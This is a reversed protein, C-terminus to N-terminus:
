STWPRNPQMKGEFGLHLSMILLRFHLFPSGPVICGKGRGSMWSDAV